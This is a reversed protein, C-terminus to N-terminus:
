RLDVIEVGPYKKQPFTFLNGTVKVSSISKIRIVSVSGNSFSIEMASPMGDNKKVTLVVSSVAADKDKPTLEIINATANTAIMKCKFNSGFNRILEFPNSEAVEEATPMTINVENQEHIYTWQNKSDYWITMAPTEMKFRNGSYILTGQPSGKGDDITFMIRCAAPKALAAACREMIATAKDPSKAGASLSFLLLAAPLLYKLVNKM